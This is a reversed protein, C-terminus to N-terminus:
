LLRFLYTGEIAFLIPKLREINIETDERKNLMQINPINTKNNQTSISKGQINMAM